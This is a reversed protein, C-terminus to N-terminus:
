RSLQAAPWQPVPARRRGHDLPHRHVAHLAPAYPRRLEGDAARQLPAPPRAVVPAPARHARQPHVDRLAERRGVQLWPQDGPQRVAGARERAAGPRRLQARHRPLAGDGRVDRVSPEAARRRHQLRHRQDPAPLGRAPAWRLEVLRRDARGHRVPGRAPLRDAPPPLRRSDVRIVLHNVRGRRILGRPLRLEFPLYAGRNTGIPRGNLWAKSRYNVSEFRGVWSANRANSPFRFDKRYWGVGGAFSADSNDGANWANPVTVRTWGATGSERQPGSQRNDLKRLWTGDMLFRGSPGNRYLTKASPTSVASKAAAPAASLSLAAAAVLLTKIKPLTM